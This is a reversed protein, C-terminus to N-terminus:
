LFNDVGRPDRQRQFHLMGGFVADSLGVYLGEGGGSFSMGAVEGFVDIEQEHQLGSALDWIHVFDAPESAALFSGCPSFRVSRIAGLQGRMCAASTGLYRLDWARATGDQNGTALLHGGPHWSAAFSYDIHGHLESVTRGGSALDVLLGVPHDGVVCLLSPNLPHVAAYNVAWPFSIRHDIKGTEVDLVRVSTDNNSAVVSMAGSAKERMELANTIANDSRSVRDSFLLGPRDLHRVVLEGGFGGAALMRGQVCMSSIQVRGVRPVQCSLLRGSLDLVVSDEGTEASYHRIGHEGAYYVGDEASAWVLNRLQFHVITPNAVRRRWTFSYLRAGRRTALCEDKLRAAAAAVKEPLNCYNQYTSLRHARYEDRTYPTSDWDIGQIDRGSQFSDYDTEDPSHPTTLTIPLRRLGAIEGDRGAAAETRVTPEGLSSSPARGDPSSAGTERPTMEEAASSFVTGSGSVASDTLM